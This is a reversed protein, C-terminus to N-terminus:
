NLMRCLAMAFFCVFSIPLLVKWCLFMLQDVRLRPLTWRLWIQVFVFFMAKSVFWLVQLIPSNMFDGFPSSWGGFFIIATIAAVVFMNSYEAMYFMAFKMGSYETHYGAVLESEGEPIDFPTRNTEALSAVLYILFMAFTFPIVWIKEIGGPGGFIYWNWIGGDQKFIIENMDLSNAMAAIGLIVMAAPIEYSVIQAVARIAGMLSYKNNSGWGAMVIAIVSFSGVAIVFFLGINTASPVFYSSFPIVAFGAYSAAFMLYPAINFLPKDAEDPTIDEKQLLKFVEAIPQLIGWFGTRMPGLKDQMFASIKLEGYIAVLAYPLIFLLPLIGVIVASIIEGTHESLLNFIYSTTEM